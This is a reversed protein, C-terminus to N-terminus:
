SIFRSGYDRPKDEEAHQRFEVARTNHEGAIFPVRVIGCHPNLPVKTLMRCLRETGKSVTSTNASSRMRCPMLTVPGTCVLVHDPSFGMQRPHIFASFHYRVEKIVM